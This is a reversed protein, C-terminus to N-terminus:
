KVEYEDILKQFDGSSLLNDKSDISKIFEGNKLYIIAPIAKIDSGFKKNIDVIDNNVMYIFNDRLDYKKIVKKLDSEFKYVKEDNVKTILIFLDSSPESLVNNVENIGIENVYGNLYSNELKKNQIKDNMNFIFLTLFVVVLIMIILYFYNKKPIVREKKM